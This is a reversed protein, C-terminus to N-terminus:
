SNFLIGDLLDICHCTAAAFRRRFTKKKVKGEPTAYVVQVWSPRQKHLEQSAGPILCHEASQVIKKSQKVIGPNIMLTANKRSRNKICIIRIFKNVEPAALGLCKKNITFEYFEDCFSKYTDLKNCEIEASIRRYSTIDKNLKM